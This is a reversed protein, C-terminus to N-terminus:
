KWKWLELGKHKPVDDGVFVFLVSGYPNGPVPKGDVPSIFKVRPTLFIVRDAFSAGRHFWETSTDSRMLMCGMSGQRAVTIAKNVWPRPNGYPPNCWFVRNGWPQILGDDAEGYSKECKANMRTACVDLTFAMGLYKEIASFLEPPTAWEDSASGM